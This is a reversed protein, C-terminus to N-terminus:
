AASSFPLALSFAQPASLPADFPVPLIWRPILTATMSRSYEAVHLQTTFVCVGSRRPKHQRRISSQRLAEINEQIRALIVQPQTSGLTFRRRMIERYNM